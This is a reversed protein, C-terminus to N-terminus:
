GGFFFEIVAWASGIILCVAWFVGKGKDVLENQKDMQEEIHALRTDMDDVKQLLQGLKLDNM